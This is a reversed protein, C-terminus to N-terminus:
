SVAQAGDPDQAKYWDAIQGGTMFIVDDRAMLMDLIELLIPFRMPVAAVHPHLAITLVRPNEELEAALTVVSYRFRQMWEDATHRHMTFAIVDNIERAYPMALMPGDATRMWCPLDDLCWEFIFEFGHKRLLEPTQETEGAGPGLWGRPPYGAFKTLREAVEAIVAEEDPEHGLSRQVVAHGTVEWGAKLAAEATSPYFDPFRANMFNSAPLNREELARFIRPMGCRLGYEVWAFNPIDPKEQKGHATVFYSRPMPEDFPWIELNVVIHVMLPKGQHPALRPRESSMQFPVRPNNEM